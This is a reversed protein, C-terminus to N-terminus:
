AKARAWKRRLKAVKRLRRAFQESEPILIPCPKGDGLDILTTAPSLAVNSKVADEAPMPDEAAANGEGATIAGNAASFIFFEAEENNPM